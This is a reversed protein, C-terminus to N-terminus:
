AVRRGAGMAALVYAAVLSLATAVITGLWVRRAQRKLAAAVAADDVPETGGGEVERAGRAALM